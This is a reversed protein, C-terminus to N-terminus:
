WEEGSVMGRWKEKVEIVSRKSFGLANVNDTIVEWVRSKHKKSLTASIKCKIIKIKKGSRRFYSDM